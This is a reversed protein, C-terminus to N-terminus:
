FKQLKLTIDLVTPHVLREFDKYRMVILEKHNGANFAINRGKTLEKAVYVDMSYLNGFPPMAGAECGPFLGKFENERAFGIKEESELSDELVAFNIKYSAPLIVMAKKRNIEVIVTKAMVQGPIHASHAIEQATYAPSHSILAYRIKKDDLYKRLKRVPM